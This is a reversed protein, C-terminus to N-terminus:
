ADIWLVTPCIGSEDISKIIDASITGYQLRSLFILKPPQVVRLSPVSQPLEAAFIVQHAWGTYEGFKKYFFDNIEKYTSKSM